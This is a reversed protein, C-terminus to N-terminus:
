WDVAFFYVAEDSFFPSMGELLATGDSAVASIPTSMNPSSFPPGAPLSATGVYRLLRYPHPHLYRSRM